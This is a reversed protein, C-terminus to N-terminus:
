TAAITEQVNRWLQVGDVDAPPRGLLNTFLEVMESRYRLPGVIVVDVGIRALEEIAAARLEPTVVPRTGHDQVDMMLRAVRGAPPGYRPRGDKDPVYVYGEHMRPRAEAFAAWLMPDAGAGNTFWPAFLVIADDAIGQQEWKVFFTPVPSDSNRAPSPVLFLLALAIAGLRISAPRRALEAARDIGIVVLVAIALWMYLTM